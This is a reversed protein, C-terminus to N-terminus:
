FLNERLPALGCLLFMSANKVKRRQAEAHTMRRNPNKGEGHRAEPPRGHGVSLSTGILRSAGLYRSKDVQTGEGSLGLMGASARSSGPRLLESVSIATPMTTKPTSSPSPHHHINLFPRAFRFHAADEKRERLAL